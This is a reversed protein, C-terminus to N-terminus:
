NFAQDGYIDFTCPFKNGYVMEIAQVDGKSLKDPNRHVRLKRDVANEFFSYDYHM